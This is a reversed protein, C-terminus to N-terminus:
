GGLNGMMACNGQHWEARADVDPSGTTDIREWEMAHYASLDRFLAERRIMWARGALLTAIIAVIVMLRRTTLRRPRM